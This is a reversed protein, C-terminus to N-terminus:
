QYCGRKIIFSQSGSSFSKNQEGYIAVNKSGKTVKCAIFKDKHSLYGILGDVGNLGVGINQFVMKASSDVIKTNTADFKPGFYCTLENSGDMQDEKNIYATLSSSGNSSVSRVFYFRWHSNELFGLNQKLEGVITQSGNFVSVTGIKTAGLAPAVEMANQDANQWPFVSVYNLYCDQDPIRNPNSNPVGTGSGNNSNTNDNQNSNTESTSASQTDLLDSENSNSAADSSKTEM